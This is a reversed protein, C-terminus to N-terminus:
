RGTETDSQEQLDARQIKDAGQRPKNDARGWAMGWVLHWDLWQMERSLVEMFGQHPM